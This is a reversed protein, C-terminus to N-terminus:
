RCRIASPPDPIPSHPNSCDGARAAADAESSAKGEGPHTMLYVRCHTMRSSRWRESRGRAHLRKRDDDCCHVHVRIGRYAIRHVLDDSVVSGEIRQHVVGPNLTSAGDLLEIKGLELCDHFGVVEARDAAHLGHQLAHSRPAGPADDIDCRDGPPDRSRRQPRVRGRLESELRNALARACSTLASPIRTAITSGPMMLVSIALDM